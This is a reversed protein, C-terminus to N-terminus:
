ATLVRGRHTLPWDDSGDTIVMEPVSDYDYTAVCCSPHGEYRREEKECWWLPLGRADQPEQIFDMQPLQYYEWDNELVREIYDASLKECHKAARKMMEVWEKSFPCHWEGGGSAGKDYVM